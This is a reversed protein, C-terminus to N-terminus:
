AEQAGLDEEDVFPSHQVQIEVTLEWLQQSRSNEEPDQTTLIASSKETNNLDMVVRLGIHGSLGWTTSKLNWKMMPCKSGEEWGMRWKGEKRLGQHANELFNGMERERGPQPNNIDNDPDWWQTDHFQIIGTMKSRLIWAPHVGTNQREWGTKVKKKPM